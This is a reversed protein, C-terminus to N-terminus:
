PGGEFHERIHRLVLQEIDDGRLPYTRIEDTSVVIVYPYIDPSRCGRSELYQEVSQSPLCHWCKIGRAAVVARIAPHDLDTRIVPFGSSLSSESAVVIVCQGVHGKRIDDVTCKGWVLPRRPIIVMRYYGLSASLCLALAAIALMVQRLTFQIRVM